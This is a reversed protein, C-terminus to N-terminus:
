RLKDKSVFNVKVEHNKFYAPMHRIENEIRVKDASEEAVVYVERWHMEEPLLKPNEGKRVREMAQPITHTYQRADLVGEIQRVADSHGMSLGGKEELGYFGKPVCGPIFADALVRNASFTGPDWGVCVVATKHNTCALEDMESFYTPINSHTDFSDVTNHIRAFAPGQIPLDKKSGGCLVAVDVDLNVRKELVDDLLYVDVGSVGEDCVRQPNRSIIGGLEIDENRKISEYVGKGVNGYGVIAIKTIM